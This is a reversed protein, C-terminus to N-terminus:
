AARGYDVHLGGLVRKVEIPKSRDIAMVPKAPPGFPGDFPMFFLDGQFVVKEKPLSAIVMERAHPHRGIDILELTRKGDTIVRKGKELLLMEPKRPNKALRDNQPAAAMTTVVGRNGPTTV